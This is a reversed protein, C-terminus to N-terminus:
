RSMLAFPIGSALASVYKPRQFYGNLSIRPLGTLHDLSRESLTGPQTTVAVSFGLDKAIEVDRAAVAARTGYPFAFTSPREGTLRELWDASQRLEERAEQPSLRSVARHSITHAGLAALPHEVLRLLDDRGMVLRATLELPDVGHRRALTDIAAVAEAEDRESVYRAFRKVCDQIRVSTSLDITEPGSGFDFTLESASPMFAGLTEWWLSYTREAFGRTIFVTFPVKHREFVPLAYEANNHYGDDLTFAAFPKTDSSALRAPVDDLRVFEYGDSRLQVIAADLFEPTVELHANPEFLQAAPRVHHLTFIAGRGRHSSFFGANSALHAANLAGAIVNRKGGRRWIGKLEHHM